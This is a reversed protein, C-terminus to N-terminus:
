LNLIRKCSIAVNQPSLITMVPCNSPCQISSQLNTMMDLNDKFPPCSIVPNITNSAIVGSLANSKGAVTIYIKATDKNDNLIGLLKETSKHASCVYSTYKINVNELETIIKNVDDFTLTAM